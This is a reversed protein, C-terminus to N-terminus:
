MSKAVPASYTLLLVCIKSTDRFMAILLEAEEPIVILATETEASWLVWEVPRVFDHTKNSRGSGISRSFQRSIFFRSPTKKISFKRGIKTRSLFDFGQIFNNGEQLEGTQAFRSIAPDLGPFTLALYNVPKQKKRLQEIEFEVEREQEVEQFASSDHGSPDVNQQSLNTAFAKLCEFELQATAGSTLRSQRPGYLQELTQDEQVQSQTRDKSPRLDLVNQYVELPMVLAISQTSGLQRLRMAATGQVTQDKTQGLGLTVAGRANVPLKLDTGRTHAEDIYVVCEELNEAFLSALLPVPAKQFRARVMIRSDRDFYVAGQAEPYIDLWAAALDLNEMELIYAEANILIRIQENLEEIQAEDDTNLLNWHELRAPLKCGHVLREYQTPPDDSQLVHLLSQTVQPKTLGTQYFALCTLVLATDPHGYEATLSPVGKAEFPVAIPARQHHLGYQVNWRKKLSVLLLRQSILGRLLYLNKLGFVNDTLSEAAREWTPLDVDVGSVILGVDRLANVNSTNQLQLQPLRGECVDNVLLANLSDEVEARLFHIIPYGQHRRLTDIGGGFRSRLYPVHDEVLLLLEEVLQWRQPHGDITMATGSPYILQTKASLTYDSEDLVDRCLNELWKQIEIMRKALKLGGDALRQLGSLKFSLMHEPLCLMVGGSSRMDQHISQFLDLNDMQTPSRRYYPIHRVARGVLGGIRSQIVQATQLLLPRPVVLRAGSSFNRSASPGDKQEEELGNRIDLLTRNVDADDDPKDAIAAIIHRAEEYQEHQVLWRPSEPLGIVQLILLIAFLAQFALPFRWQLSSETFSTGYDMWYSIVVGLITVRGQLTLLAGRIAASSCERQYVPATSSNMGNGIGTVIRGVILQAVTYSSALIAAGVIMISRGAILM